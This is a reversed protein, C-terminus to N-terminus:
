PEFTIEIDSVNIFPALLGRPVFTNKFMHVPAMRYTPCRGVNNVFESWESHTLVVRTVIKNTRVQEARVLREIYKFDIKEFEFRM